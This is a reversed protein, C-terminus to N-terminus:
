SVELEKLYEIYKDHEKEDYLRKRNFLVKYIKEHADAPSEKPKLLGYEDYIYYVTRIGYFMECAKRISNIDVDKDLAIIIDVDLSILIKAQELSVDHCLLSVATNDKKSDRKLTSKEAEFVTVYGAKQIYSYNEQLGYLNQSKSYKHLPFYKPIDFMDYNKLLTRGILGVYENDAGCWYRHPIVIRNTKSSYGIGFKYQTNPLIGERVWGIYPCRIYEQTIDEEIVKIPEFYDNNESKCVNKFIKLIDIKKNNESNDKIKIGTYKLGLLKHIYRISKNFSIGKIDMILTFIDGAKKNKKSSVDKNDEAYTIVKLYENKKIATSNAKKHLPTSFRYEKSYSHIKSCGIDELVTKIENNEYIYKKLEIADIKIM